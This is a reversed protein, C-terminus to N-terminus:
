VLISGIFNPHGNTFSKADIAKKGEKQLEKLIIVGNATQVGIDDGIEFIEGEQHKELPNTKQLRINILKIRIISSSNKWYTFIGPWPTLARFRNHIEEASNTWYIRGDEREILECFTAHEHNQTKPEIKQGIWLPITDLLLKTGISSLKETLTKTNDNNDIFVIEQALIDGTDVGEDMLMITIGTEKEGNLLANQIPSPGRYKPLISVHVNICGFGPINLAAEPIIKGYAAVVVLDPKLQKLQEVAETNFRLPQFVPINKEEALKKVLPSTVEQKRGIKKDPKTFVGIVNYDADILGKLVVESLDSTGM